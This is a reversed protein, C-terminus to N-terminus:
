SDFRVGYSELQLDLVTCNAAEADYQLRDLTEPCNSVAFGIDGGGAGSPKYLVGLRKARSKLYQHGASLIKLGSQQDLRRLVDTFENLAELFTTGSSLSKVVQEASNHFEERVNTPQSEFWVRFAQVRPLTQSSVGVFIFRFYLDSPLQVSEATGSKFQITGGCYSTAVDIGSGGYNLHHYLTLLDTLNTDKNTLKALAAYLAVLVAASSGIGLKLNREFFALSETHVSLHQPLFRSRVFWRILQAPEIDFADDLISELSQTFHWFRPTSDFHWNGENTSTLVCSARRNVAISLAPAGYLVAYEGALM